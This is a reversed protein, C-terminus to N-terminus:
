ITPIGSGGAEDTGGDNWFEDGRPMLHETECSRIGAGVRKHGRAGLHMAAIQIVEFAEAFACGHRIAYDVRGENM